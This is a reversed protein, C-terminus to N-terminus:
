YKRGVTKQIYEGSYLVQMIEVSFYLTIASYFVWLLIIVISSLSGYVVNIGSMHHMYMGFLERAVTWLAAFIAGATIRYKLPIQLHPLFTRVTVVFFLVLVLISFLPFNPNLHVLKYFHRIYSVFDIQNFSKTSAMISWIFNTIFLFLVIFISALGYLAQGILMNRTPLKFIKRYSSELSSFMVGSVLPLLVFNFVNFSHYAKPNIVYTRVWDRSIFPIFNTLEDTFVEIVDGTWSTDAIVLKLIMKFLYISLTSFPIIALLFVYSFASSLTLCDDKFFNKLAQAITRGVATFPNMIM